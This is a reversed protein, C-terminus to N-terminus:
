ADSEEKTEPDAHVALIRGFSGRHAPLLM